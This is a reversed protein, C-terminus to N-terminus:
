RTNKPFFNPDIFNIKLYQSPKEPDFYVAFKKTFSALMAMIELLFCLLAKLIPVAKFDFSLQACPGLLRSPQDNRKTEFRNSRLQEM